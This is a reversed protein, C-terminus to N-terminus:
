VLINDSYHNVYRSKPREYIQFQQLPLAANGLFEDLGLLNRHYVNLIVSQTMESLLRNLLLVLWFEIVVNLDLLWSHAIM